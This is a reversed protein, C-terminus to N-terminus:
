SANLLFELQKVLYAKPMYGVYKHHVKGQTDIFFTTPIGSVSGDEMVPTDMGQFFTKVEKLEAVRQLAEKGAIVIPYGLEREKAFKGIAEPKMNYPDMADLSAGLFVVNKDKFEDYAAKFHPLEQLCPPCWTAWFNLVIVKGKYDAMRVPNGQLDQLELNELSSASSASLEPADCSSVAFGVILIFLAMAAPRIHKSM